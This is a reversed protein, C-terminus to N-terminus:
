NENIFSFSDAGAAEPNKLGCMAIKFGGFKADGTAAELAPPSVAYVAQPEEVKWEAPRPGQDYSQDCGM